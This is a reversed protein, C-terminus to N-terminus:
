VVREGKKAGYSEKVTGCEQRVRDMTMTKPAHCVHSIPGLMPASFTIPNFFYWFALTDRPKIIAARTNAMKPM